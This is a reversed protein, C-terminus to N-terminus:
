QGIRLGKELSIREADSNVNTFAEAADSFNVVVSKRGALWGQLRREGRALFDLISDLQERRLLAFLPQLREGDHVVAIDDGKDLGRWLRAALDPPLRPGDCPVVLVWPTAAQELVAAMGALPGPFDPAGDAVVPWGYRAYEALNRNANLILAGVQPRLSEMIHEVMPRGGLELLGKDRGGM